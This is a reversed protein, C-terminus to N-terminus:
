NDSSDTVLLDTQNFLWNSFRYRIDFMDGTSDKSYHMNLTFHYNGNQVEWIDGKTDWMDAPTLSPGLYSQYSERQLGTKLKMWKYPLLVAATKPLVFFYAFAYMCGAIVIVIGAIGAWKKM